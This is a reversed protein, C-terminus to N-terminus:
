SLPRHRCVFRQNHNQYVKIQLNTPVPLQLRSASPFNNSAINLSTYAYHTILFLLSLETQKRKVWRTGDPDSTYPHINFSKM